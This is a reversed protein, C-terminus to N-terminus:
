DALYAKWGEERLTKIEEETFDFGFDPNKLVRETMEIFFREYLARYYKKFTLPFGKAKEVEDGRWGFEPFAEFVLGFWGMFGHSFIQHPILDEAGM